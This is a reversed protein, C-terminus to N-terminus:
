SPGRGARSKLLLSDGKTAVDIPLMTRLADAFAANDGLRFTGSIRIEAALTDDVILRQRDYRNMTAVARSLSDDSFIVRGNRWATWREVSDASMPAARVSTEDFAQGGALTLSRSGATVEATGSLMMIRAAQGAEREIEFSGRDIRLDCDGTRVLLSGSSRASLDFHARGRVLTAECGTDRTRVRLRSEADLLVKTRDALAISRREGIGTAYDEASAIMAAFGGAVATLAAGGGLVFRRRGIAIPRPVHPQETAGVFEWAATLDEFTAAHRPDASLWVRFRAREQEDCRDAHLRALWSAAEREIRAQSMREVINRISKM